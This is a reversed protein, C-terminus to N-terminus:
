FSYSKPRAFAALPAIDTDAFPILAFAGAQRRGMALRSVGAEDVGALLRGGEALQAVLSDPVQQVAGDIIILDYPADAAHGQTLDSEIVSVNAMGGLAASAHEVLARNDEVAVVRAVIGALLAALYGTGAGILLVKENGSLEARTLLLGSSLAPNLVRGGSLPVARDIYALHQQAAPVFDERRTVAMAAIVVPDSVDSPRLQSEIMHRRAAAFDPPALTHTDTM